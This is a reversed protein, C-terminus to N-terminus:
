CHCCSSAAYPRHFEAERSIIPCFALMTFTEKQFAGCSVVHCSSTSTGRLISIQMLQEWYEKGCRHSGKCWVDAITPKPLQSCLLSSGSSVRSNFVSHVRSLNEIIIKVFEPFHEQSLMSIICLNFSADLRLLLATWMTRLASFGGQERKVWGRCHCGEVM